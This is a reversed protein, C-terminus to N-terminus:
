HLSHIQHQLLLKQVNQMLKTLNLRLDGRNTSDLRYKMKTPSQCGRQFRKGILFKRAINHLMPYTLPIDEQLWFKQYGNKFQVKLEENTSIGILEEQLVVDMEEIDDRNILRQAIVMTLIDKYRIEFNALRRKDLLLSRSGLMFVRRDAM